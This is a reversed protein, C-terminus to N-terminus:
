GDESNVGRYACLYQLRLLSRTKENTKSGDCDEEKKGKFM